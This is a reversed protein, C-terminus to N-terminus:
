NVTPMCKKRGRLSLLQVNTIEVSWDTRDQVGDIGNFQSTSFKGRTISGSVLLTDSTSGIMLTSGAKAGQLKRALRAFETGEMMLNFDGLTTTVSPSTIEVFVKDFEQLTQTNGEPQIPTNEDTLAAVINIDPSLKGALQM